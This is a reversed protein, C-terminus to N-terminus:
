QDAGNPHRKDHEIMRMVTCIRTEPLPDIIHCVSLWHYKAWWLALKMSM